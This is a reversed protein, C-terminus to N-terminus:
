SVISRQDTFVVKWHKDTSSTSHQVPLDSVNSQLQENNNVQELRQDILDAWQDIHYNLVSNSSCVTCADLHDILRQAEESTLFICDAFDDPEFNVKDVGELITPPFFDDTGMVRVNHCNRKIKDIGKQSLKM